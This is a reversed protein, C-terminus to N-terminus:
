CALAIRGGELLPRMQVCHPAAGGALPTPGAIVPSVPAHGPFMEALLVAILLAMVASLLFQGPM